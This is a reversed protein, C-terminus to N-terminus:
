VSRSAGRNIRLLASTILLLWQEQLVVYVISNLIRNFRKMKETRKPKSGTLDSIQTNFIVSESFERTIPDFRFSERKFVHHRCFFKPDSRACPFAICKAYLPHCSKTFHIKFKDFQKLGICQYGNPIM